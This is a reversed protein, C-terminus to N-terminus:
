KCPAFFTFETVNGQFIDRYDKLLLDPHFPFREYLHTTNTDCVYVKRKSFADFKDNLAYQGKLDDYSHIGFSKIIWVDADKAVALVQNFDLSLSGSHDDDTWPYIGGADKIIQAMYSKGGPVNWVGSIVTETLVKPHRPSQASEAKVRNYDEVVQNFLKEAEADKGVLAGYFKVWEARGLPTQEMYDACMILPSNLRELQEFNSDQYPSLLIGDPHMEIGKEITPAMSSGCDAIAGAELKKLVLSDTYYQADVIGKVAEAAGLETLLSSHVASYVLANSLPTRVITGEPLSDPLQAAAPVLVYRQMVGDGWPNAVTAVMYGDHQEMTLLKAETIINNDDGADQLATTTCSVMALALMLAFLLRNM